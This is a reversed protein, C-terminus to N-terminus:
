VIKNKDLVNELQSLQNEISIDVCMAGPVDRLRGGERGGERGGRERDIEIERREIKGERLTYADTRAHTRAHMCTQTDKEGRTRICASSANVNVHHVREQWTERGGLHISEGHRRLTMVVDLM